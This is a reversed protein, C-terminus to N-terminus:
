QQTGIASQRNNKFRSLDRRNIRAVHPQAAARHEAAKRAVAANADIRIQDIFTEHSIGKRAFFANCAADIQQFWRLPIGAIAGAPTVDEYQAPDLIM